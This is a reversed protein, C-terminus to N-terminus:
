GFRHEAMLLAVLLGALFPLFLLLTLVHRGRSTPRTSRLNWAAGWFAAGPLASWAAVLFVLFGEGQGHDFTERHGFLATGLAYTLIPTVVFGLAAGFLLRGAAGSPGRGRADKTAAPRGRKPKSM